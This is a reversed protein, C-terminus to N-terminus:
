HLLYSACKISEFIVDYVKNHPCNLANEEAEYECRRCERREGVKHRFKQMM